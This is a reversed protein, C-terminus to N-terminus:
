VIKQDIIFSSVSDIKHVVEKLLLIIYFIYSFLLLLFLYTTFRNRGVKWLRIEQLGNIKYISDNMHYIM